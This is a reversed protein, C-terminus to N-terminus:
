LVSLDQIMKEASKMKPRLRLCIRAHEVAKDKEGLVLYAQALEMRWDVREYHLRLADTFCRAAAEHNEERKYIRAVEVIVSAPANPGRAEAKLLQVIRARVAAARNGQGEMGRLASEVWGLRSRDEEALEVAVDPLRARVVLVTAIQEFLGPKLGIARRFKVACEEPRNELADLVGATLCVTPDHPALEFGRLIHGPGAPDNLFYTQFQGIVCYIPGYTPCLRRADDLEQTIRRIFEMGRSKLDVAGTDPDRDRSIARWRYVGLWYRYHIDLPACESASATQSILDAYAQDSALWGRESLRDAIDSARKWHREATWTSHASSVCWGVALATGVLAAPALFRRRVGPSSRPQLTCTRVVDSKGVLLGCWAAALCVNAPLRLGFDGFSHVAVAMLGFGLGYGVAASEGGAAVCRRWARWVCFAFAGVLLLGGAGTEEATQAYENEAHAALSPSTRRDFMPYVVEHTGLGTGFLPFETWATAVGQLIEWRTRYADQEELTALRDFVADFGVFLVCVLAGLMLALMIWERGNLQRRRAMALTTLSAALLLAVIGGRSLSLVVSAMGVAVVLALVWVWRARPSLVWDLVNSDSKPVGALGDQIKLLLLSFSAGITLSAFLCYNNRNVFPGGNADGTSIPVMWYIKSADTADQALALVALGAGLGAMVWLVRRMADPRRALTMAALFVIFAVFALRLDRLTGAPYLSIPRAESSNLLSNNLEVTSPSVARLIAEPLPVLQATALLLFLAFPLFAWSGGRGPNATRLLRLALCLALTGGLAIVVFESWAEVAGLALPAFVLTATLIAEIGLDFRVAQRDTRLAASPADLGNTGIM